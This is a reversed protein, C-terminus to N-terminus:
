GVIRAAATLFQQAYALAEAAQTKSFVDAPTGAPLGNPYRTPVYYQDLRQAAERLGALEPHRNLLSQLLELLSHGFVLREGGLYRLAKLAKEGAQQCLFCSQAPYGERVGVEAFALDSRAQALWREAEARPQPKM